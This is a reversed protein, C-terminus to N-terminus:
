VVVAVGRGSSNMFGGLGLGGGNFTLDSIVRAHICLSLDNFTLDSIVHAHLCQCTHRSLGNPLSRQFSTPVHSHGNPFRFRFRRPAPISRSAFGSVVHAPKSRSAFGSVVHAPITRSAFGSFRSAPAPFSACRRAKYVAGFAGKGLMELIVYGRVCRLSSDREGSLDDFAARM